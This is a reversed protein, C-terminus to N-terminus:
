RLLGWTLVEDERVARRLTRGLTRGLDAPPIGTGPRKVALDERRLRHGRGFDGAAVLSKRAILMNKRECPAPRKVGDGLAAEVNRITRVMAAFEVPNLSAKHDPGPLSRDLTFHKEIVAAGLAAAAAPIEIGMTHDSYGVPLGFEKRLTHLARLNIEGVPAPYETVCHLLTLAARSLASIWGVAARVEALTSMGTSLLIPKRKRAVHELLGKNTIEGSPLKFAKVGLRELLDASEEDFPTSLFQIGSRYCHRFLELHAKEDLELRRIMELQSDGEVSKRQYAALSAYRSAIKEAKFTQFKVADAGCEKAADVLRKAMRPDGNHNVGAEAIILIPRRKM